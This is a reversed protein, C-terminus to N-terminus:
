DSNGLGQFKWLFWSWWQLKWRRLAFCRRRTSCAFVRSTFAFRFFWFVRTVFIRFMGTYGLESMYRSFLVDVKQVSNTLATKWPEVRKKLEDLKRQKSGTLDDLKFQADELEKQVAVYQRLVDPDAVIDDAIKEAEELAAEAGQLDMVGLGDLKERLQNPQGEEDLLPAIEEAEEKLAKVHELERKYQRDIKDYERRAEEVAAQKDEM